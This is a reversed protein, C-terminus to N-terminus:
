SNLIVPFINDKGLSVMCEFNEIDDRKIIGDCSFILTKNGEKEEEDEQQDNTPSSLSFTLQKAQPSNLNNLIVKIENSKFSM